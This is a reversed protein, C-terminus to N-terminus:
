FLTFIFCGAGNDESSGTQSSVTSPLTAALGSPDIIVGNAEGDADGYGGDQLHIIVSSRDQSFTVYDTYDTWGSAEDHKYWRADAPAAKPLKVRVSATDGPNDVLVSFYILGFPMNDPQNIFNLLTAPDCYKASEIVASDLSEMTLTGNDTELIQLHDGGNNDIDVDDGNYVLACREISSSGDMGDTVPILYICYERNKPKNVTATSASGSVNGLVNGSAEEIRYYDPIAGTFNWKLRIDGEEGSFVSFDQIGDYSDPGEMWITSSLARTFPYKEDAQWGYPDFSYFKGGSVLVYEQHLHTGGTAVDGVEAVIQGRNVRDGEKVLFKSCHRFITFYKENHQIKIYGKKEIIEIINGVAPSRLSTGYAHSNDYGPHGDYWAFVDNYGPVFSGFNIDDDNDGKDMKYGHLTANNVDIAKHGYGIAGHVGKYTVVYGDAGYCNEDMIKRTYDYFSTMEYSNSVAYPGFAKVPYIIRFATILDCVDLLNGDNDHLYYLDQCANFPITHRLLGKPSTPILSADNDIVELNEIENETPKRFNFHPPMTIPIQPVRVGDRSSEVGKLFQNYVRYPYNSTLLSGDAGGGNYSVVVFWWVELAARPEDDYILGNVNDADYKLKCAAIRINAEIGDLSDTKALDKLEDRSMGQYEFFDGIVLDIYKDMKSTDLELQMFGFGPGDYTAPDDGWSSETEAIAKLLSSPVSYEYGAEDFISHYDGEGEGNNENEEEEDDDCDDYDRSVSPKVESCYSDGVEKGDFFRECFVYRNESGTLCDPTWPDDTNWIYDCLDYNNCTKTESPEAEECNSDSVPNGNSDQCYVERTRQSLGCAEDCDGYNGTYWSYSEDQDDDSDDSDEPRGKQTVTFTQGAITITGSRSSTSTNELVTYYVRVDGEGFLDIDIIIWSRNSSVEWECNDGTTLNFSGSGGISGVKVSAPAISYDCDESDASGTFNQNENSDINSFRYSGPNFTYGSKTPSVTGSWGSDVLVSYRGSNNTKIYEPFGNLVVDSVGDGDNDRVYGSISYKLSETGTFDYGSMDRSLNSINRSSPSFTYNTKSPTITGSWGAPLTKEYEGNYNTNATGQGTFSVKVNSLYNRRNDQITGSVVYDEPEEVPEEEYVYAVPNGNNEWIYNGSQTLNYVEAWNSSYLRDGKSKNYIRYLAKRGDGSSTHVYGLISEQTYGADIAADREEETTALLRLRPTGNKVMRYMPTMGSLRTDSVYFKEGDDIWNSAESPNTTYLHEQYSGTLTVKRYVAHWDAQATNVFLFLMAGLLWLIKGNLKM